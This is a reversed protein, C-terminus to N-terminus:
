WVAVTHNAFGDGVVADDFLKSAAAHANDVFGLVRAKAAKHGEFKQGFFNGAIRLGEGAKLAFGLGSGGEVMGIDAGDVVDALLIALGEDDHFKEFAHCQLVADGATRKLGVDRKAEGNLDGVREVGGVGFADHVAVDLGRIDEDGFASV